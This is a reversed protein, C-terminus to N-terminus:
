GKFMQMHYASQAAVRGFLQSVPCIRRAACGNTMCDRGPVTGLYSKCAPVDYGGDAFAGVPCATVCPKEACTLCPNPPAPPLDIRDPLALAGRFSVMLGATDHVLLMIPSTHIRNTRTAWRQFPQYPPGGFPYLAMAGIEEAWGGIVRRSWRDVPDPAGDAFEPGETVHSWFGAAEDPGLLLLTEYGEPVDDSPDPHFGGLITLHRRAAASELLGFNM